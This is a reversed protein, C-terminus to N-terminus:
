FQYTTGKSYNILHRILICANPHIMSGVMKVKMSLNQGRGRYGMCTM